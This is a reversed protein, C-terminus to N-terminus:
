VPSLPHFSVREIGSFQSGGAALRQSLRKAREAHRSKQALELRAAAIVRAVTFIPKAILRNLANRAADAIPLFVAESGVHSDLKKAARAHSFYSCLPLFEFTSTFFNFHNQRQAISRPNKECTAM